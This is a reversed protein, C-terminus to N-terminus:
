LDALDNRLAIIEERRVDTMEGLRQHYVADGGEPHRKCNYTVVDGNRLKTYASSGDAHGIAFM